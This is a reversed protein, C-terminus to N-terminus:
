GRPQYAVWIWPRPPALRADDPSLGIDSILHDDLHSLDPHNRADRRLRIEHLLWFVLSPKACREQVRVPANSAAYAM